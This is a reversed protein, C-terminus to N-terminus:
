SLYPGNVVRWLFVNFCVMVVFYFGGFDTKWMLYKCHMDKEHEYEIFAYGRPKTDKTSMVM